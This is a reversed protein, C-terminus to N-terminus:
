DIGNPQWILRLWACYAMMFVCDFAVGIVNVGVLARRRAIADWRSAFVFEALVEAGFEAFM